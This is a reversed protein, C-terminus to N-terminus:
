VVKRALFALGPTLHRVLPAPVWQMLLRTSRSEGQVFGPRRRAARISAADTPVYEKPFRMEPTAWYSVQREFGAERLLASLARHSHLMGGPRAHGRRRLLWRWLPRPLPSGFRMYHSHEDAKGLLYKMAFRNKTALYLSGGPRLVRAMESLLRRQVDVEHEEPCRSACWEFVLNLVVLDFSADLYPLRCDDGGAAVRVNDLGQQACRQAVFEAQGSVVELASVSRARRALLPTFQGLGPGIELVDSAPTLPLLDIFSARAPQTVYELLGPEDRYVSRLAAEWGQRRALENLLALKRQGEDSEASGFRLFQPIGARLPYAPGDAAARLADGEGHLLSRTLPCAYPRELLSHPAM